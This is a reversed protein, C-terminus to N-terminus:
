SVAAAVPEVAGQVPEAEGALSLRNRPVVPHMQNIAVDRGGDAACWRAVFRQGLFEVPAPGKEHVLQPQEGADANHYGQALDREVAIELGAALEVMRQGARARGESVPPDVPERPADRQDPGVMWGLLVGKRSFQRSRHESRYKRRGPPPQRLCSSANALSEAY